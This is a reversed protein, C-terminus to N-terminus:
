TKSGALLISGKNEDIAFSRLSCLLICCLGHALKLIVSTESFIASRKQPILYLGSWTNRPVDVVIGLEYSTSMEYQNEDKNGRLFFFVPAQVEKELHGKPKQRCLFM